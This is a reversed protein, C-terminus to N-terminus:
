NSKVVYSDRARVAVNPLNVRVKIQRREGKEGKTKLYYGLNYQQGIENAIQTFTEKLDIIKEVQYPRGGTAKALDAMYNKAFEASELRKRFDKESEHSFRSFITTDFTITYILAENEEADRLNSKASAFDRESLGDSFLIIAKRGSIKKMKKLAFDVADYVMTYSPSGNIKLPLKKRERVEKVSKANFLLHVREDFTAVMLKDDPRLQNVFANSADTLQALDKIMSGSVDLLLLVTVPQEITEFLTIEQEVGNEFIQFDEKKLNTIYRGDRDSVSVPITVLNTDVRIIDEQSYISSSFISIISLIILPKIVKLM